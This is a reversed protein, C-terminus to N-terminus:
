SGLMDFRVPGLVVRAVSMGGRLRCVLDDLTADFLLAASAILPMTAPLEPEFAEDGAPVAVRLLPGDREVAEGELEGATTTGLVATRVVSGNTIMSAEFNSMRFHAVVTTKLM